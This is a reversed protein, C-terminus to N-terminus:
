LLRQALMQPIRRDLAVALRQTLRTLSSSSLELRLQTPQQIVARGHVVIGLAHLRHLPKLM